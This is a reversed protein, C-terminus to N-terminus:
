KLRKITRNKNDKSNGGIQYVQVRGTTDQVTINVKFTVDDGDVTATIYSDPNRSLSARLLMPLATEIKAGGDLVDVKVVEAPWGTNELGISLYNNKYIYPDSLEINAQFYTGIDKIAYLADKIKLGKLQRNKSTFNQHKELVAQKLDSKALTIHL